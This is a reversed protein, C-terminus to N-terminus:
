SSCSFKIEFASTGHSTYVASCAEQYSMQSCLLCEHVGKTGKLGVSEACM